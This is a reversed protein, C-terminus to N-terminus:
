LRVLTLWLADSWKVKMVFLLSLSVHGQVSNKPELGVFHGVM